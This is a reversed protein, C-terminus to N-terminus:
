FTRIKHIWIWTKNFRKKQLAKVTIEVKFGTLNKQLPEYPQLGSISIAQLKLVLQAIM